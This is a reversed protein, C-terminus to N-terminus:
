LLKIAKENNLGRLIITKLIIIRAKLFKWDSCQNIRDMIGNRSQKM